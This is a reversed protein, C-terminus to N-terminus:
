WEPEPLSPLLSGFWFVLGFALVLVAM